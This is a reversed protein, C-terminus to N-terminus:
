RLKEFWELCDDHVTFGDVEKMEGAYKPGLDTGCIVCNM